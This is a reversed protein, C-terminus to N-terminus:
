NKHSWIIEIEFNDSGSKSDNIEIVASYDNLKGPQQVVYASGRGRKKIVEVNVQRDPLPSTFNFTDGYNTQGSVTRVEINQDRVILQVKDDVRGRWTARGIIRNTNNTPNTNQSGGYGGGLERSLDDVTRQINSFRMGFTGNAARRVNESVIQLADRLDANNRRDRTMRRLVTASASIQQASMMREVEARGGRSNSFDYYAREAVDDAQQALREVLNEVRYSLNDQAAADFVFVGSLILTLAWLINKM